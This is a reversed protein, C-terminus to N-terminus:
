IGQMYASKKVGYKYSLTLPHSIHLYSFNSCLFRPTLLM